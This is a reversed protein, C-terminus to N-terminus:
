CALGVDLNKNASYNTKSVYINNFHLGIYILNSM